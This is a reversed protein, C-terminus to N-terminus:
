VMKITYSESTTCGVSSYYPDGLAMGILGCSVMSESLSDLSTMTALDALYWCIFRTIDCGSPKGGPRGLLRSPGVGLGFSSLYACTSGETPPAMSPPWLLKVWPM